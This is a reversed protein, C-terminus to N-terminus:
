GGEKPPVDGAFNGGTKPFSCLFLFLRNAIIPFFNRFQDELLNPFIALISGNPM